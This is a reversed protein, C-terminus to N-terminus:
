RCPLTFYSATSPLSEGTRNYATVFYATDCDAQSDLYSTATAPLEALRQFVLSDRPTRYVRYGLVQDAAPNPSWALHTSEGPQYDGTFGTVQTPAGSILRPEYRPLPPAETGTTGGGAKLILPLYTLKDPVGTGIIVTRTKVLSRVVPCPSSTVTMVVTYTGNATYTHLLEQGIGTIVDGFNWTFIISESGESIGGVFNIPVNPSFPPSTEIIIEPDTPWFCDLARVRFPPSMASIFGRQNLGTRRQPAAPIAQNMSGLHNIITIRFQAHESLAADANANWLFTYPQGDRRARSFDGVDNTLVGTAPQWANGDLSYEFFTGAGTLSIIDDNEPDFLTFAVPVTPVLPNALIEPASFFYADNTTGPRPISLYTPNNPLPRTKSVDATAVLHSPSVYSNLYIGAASGDRRSIALELDGDGDVDGWAVGTTQASEQSKWRWILDATGTDVLM